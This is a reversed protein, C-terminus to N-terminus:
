AICSEHRNIFIFTGLAPMTYLHELLHVVGGELLADFTLPLHLTEYGRWGDLELAGAPIDGIISPLAM